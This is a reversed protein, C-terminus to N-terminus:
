RVNNIDSCVGTVPAISVVSFTPQTETGERTTGPVNVVPTMVGSIRVTEGVYGTMQEQKGTLHLIAGTPLALVYNGSQVDLCGELTTKYAASRSAFKSNANSEFEHQAVACVASFVLVSILLSVRRM